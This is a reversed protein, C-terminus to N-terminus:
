YHPLYQMKEPENLHKSTYFIRVQSVVFLFVLLEHKIQCLREPYKCFERHYKLINSSLMVHLM